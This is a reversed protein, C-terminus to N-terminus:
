LPWVLEGGTHVFSEALCARVEFVKFPHMQVPGCALLLLLFFFVHEGAATDGLAAQSASKLVTNLRHGWKRYALSESLPVTLYGSLYNTVTGVGAQILMRAECLDAWIGDEDGAVWAAWVNTAYSLIYQACKVCVLGFKRDHRSLVQCCRLSLRRHLSHVAVLHDFLRNQACCCKLKRM